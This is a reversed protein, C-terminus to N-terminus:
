QSFQIQKSMSNKVSYLQERLSLNNTPGSYTQGLNPSVISTTGHQKKTPWQPSAIANISSSQAHINPPEVSQHNKNQDRGGRSKRQVLQPNVRAQNYAQTLQVSKVPDQSIAEREQLTQNPGRASNLQLMKKATSNNAVPEM